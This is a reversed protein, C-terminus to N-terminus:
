PMMVRTTPDGTRADIVSAYAIVGSGAQVLVQAYGRDLNSQGARAYFPRTEQKWEGAALTVTYAGVQTGSGDFLKVQVTAQTSGTNTLGVNTRYAANEALQGLFASQGAALGEGARYAAYDQGFTGTATQNYTRSTVRVPASAVVEIAGSGSFGLQGVVDTFVMQSGAPVSATNALVGGPTYLRVQLSVAASGTNLVGLDTRWQTGELGSAHAGVAIWSSYVVAGDKAQFDPAANRFTNAEDSEAVAGTADLVLIAWVNYTGSGLNPMTFDWRVWTETNAALGPVAADGVLYDDNLNGDNDTSLYLRAQTVAAAATGANRVLARVFFASGETALAGQVQRDTVQLDPRPTAASGMVSLPTDCMITNWENSEEVENRSDAMVIVWLQYNGSGLDPVTFTFPVNVTGGRVLGGVAREGVDYDDSTSFDKGPSLWMRAHFVPANALGTNRISVTITISSGEVAGGSFSFYEPLLNPLEQGGAVGVGGVWVALAAVVACLVVDMRSLANRM